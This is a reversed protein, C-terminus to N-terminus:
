YENIRKIMQQLTEIVIEKDRMEASYSKSRMSDYSINEQYPTSLYPVINKFVSNLSRAMVVKLDDAARLILAMQDVSLISLLKTKEKQVVKKPTEVGKLPVISYHIQKELYFVEQTFWNSVQKHLDADKRNFIIGPKKHYQKLLKLYFLLRDMKEGPQELDNTSAALRQTLRYIYPKSNFNMNILLEDLRSYVAAEDVPELRELELVLDKIYLIEQFIYTHKDPPQTLFKELEQKLTQFTPHYAEYDLLRKDVASLRKVLEKKLVALYTAPVREEVSLYSIFRHEILTLLEDICAIITDLVQRVPLSEKMLSLDELAQDLLTILSSHYKKILCRIKAEDNLNFVTSKIATQVKDKQSIVQDTIEAIDGPVAINVKSKEPNLTVTVLTDLWELVYGDCM